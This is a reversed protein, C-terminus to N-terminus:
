SKSRSIGTTPLDKFPVGKDVRPERPLGLVREAAINKQIQDSGGAIHLAPAYLYAAQWHGNRALAEPGLLELGIRAAESRIQSAAMKAVSTETSPQEGKVLKTITKANLFDLARSRSYLKVLDDRTVADVRDRHRRAHSLLDEFSFMRNGAGMAMRESSLTSMAVRWGDDLEGVLQDAPVRVDDFFVESFQTQGTMQRLPRCEIGPSTMDVLFYSIGRHKPVDVNTRALLIGWDSLHASSSWIKHGNVIFNDGERVARTSLAALDSGAGPESFLQCWVEEGRLMPRLFRDKQGQTGHRIITPGAMKIGVIFISERIKLRACEQNWIVQQIPPADRGGYAAPWGIAAWEADYLVRQWAKSQTVFADIDLREDHPDPWERPANGELFARVEARFAAEDPSDQFNM